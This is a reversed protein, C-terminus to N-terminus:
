AAKCALLVREQLEPDSQAAMIVENYEAITLGQESIALSAAVKAQDTLTLHEADTQAKAMDEELSRRLSAVEVVAKGVQFVVDDSVNNGDVTGIDTRSKPTNKAM